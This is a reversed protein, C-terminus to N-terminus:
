STGGQEKRKEPRRIEQRRIEQQITLIRAINKKNKKINGATPASASSRLKLLEKRSERLRTKLEEASLHRLEKAAKM